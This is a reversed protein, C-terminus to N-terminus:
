GLAQIRGFARLQENLWRSDLRAFEADSMRWNWNGIITGPTNMRAWTGLGLLDQAPIVALSSVTGLVAKVAAEVFVGRHMNLYTLAHGREHDPANDIWGALTDNDHTGTYAVQNQKANHPL